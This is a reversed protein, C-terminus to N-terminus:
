LVKLVITTSLRLGEFGVNTLNKTKRSLSFLLCWCVRNQPANGYLTAHHIAFELKERVGTGFCLGRKAYFTGMDGALLPRLNEM